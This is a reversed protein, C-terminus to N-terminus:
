FPAIQSMLRIQSSLVEVDFDRALGLITVYFFIKADICKLNFVQSLHGGKLKTSQAPM